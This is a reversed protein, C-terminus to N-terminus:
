PPSLSAARGAARGAGPAPVDALEPACLVTLDPHGILSTAPWDVQPEGDLLHALAERKSTGAALLLIRRAARLTAIGLTLGRPPLVQGGAVRENVTLTEHSLPAVHTRTSWPTGPENFAIHGNAGLGLIALGIGGCERIHAEVAECEAVSDHADGHVLRVQLAPIALPTFLQRTLFDAYSRPDGAGLGQYEDLNLYRATRLAQLEVDSRTRLAHYLGLPTRGTPVAILSGPHDLVHRCLHDAASAIFQSESAAQIVRM